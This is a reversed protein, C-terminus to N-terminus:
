WSSFRSPALDSEDRVHVEALNVGDWGWWFSHNTIWKRNAKGGKEAHRAVKEQDRRWQLWSGLVHAATAFWGDDNLMVFAALGSTVKGDQTRSSVVVPRTFRTVIEYADAFM